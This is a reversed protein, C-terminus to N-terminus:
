QGSPQDGERGPSEPSAGGAPGGPGPPQSAGAPQTAPRPPQSGSAPRPGEAPGPATSPPQEGARPRAPAPRGEPGSPSQEGQRARAGKEAKLRAVLARLEKKDVCCGGRVKLAVRFMAELWVRRMPPGALRVRGSRIEALAKSWMDLVPSPATRSGLSELCWGRGELVKTPSRVTAGLAKLYQAVVPQLPLGVFVVARRGPNALLAERVGRLVWAAMRAKCACGKLVLDPWAVLLARGFVQSHAVEFSPPLGVQPLMGRLLRMMVMRGGHEERARPRVGGPEHHGKWPSGVLGLVPMRLRRAKWVVYSFVPGLAAPEGAAVAAQPAQVVTVNPRYEELLAGLVQLPYDRRVFHGAMITGVVVVERGSLTPVSGRPPAATREPVVCGTGLVVFVALWSWGRSMWRLSSTM